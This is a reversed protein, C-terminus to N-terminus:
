STKWKEIEEKRKAIYEPHQLRSDTDTEIIFVLKRDEETNVPIYKPAPAQTVFLVNDDVIIGGRTLCDEFVKGYMWGRNGIDFLAGRELFTDHIEMQIKIPYDEEKIAKLQDLKSNIFKKVEIVMKARVHKSIDGNYIKQFSVKEWHPTGVSKPNAVVRRMTEKEVLLTRNKDLPTPFVKWEYKSKDKYKVPLKPTKRNKNYYKAVRANSM